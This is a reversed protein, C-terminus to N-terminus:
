REASYREGLSYRDYFLNDTAKQSNTVRQASAQAHLRLGARICGSSVALALEDGLSDDLGSDPLALKFAAIDSNTLQRSAFDIASPVGSIPQREDELARRSALTQGLAIRYASSM